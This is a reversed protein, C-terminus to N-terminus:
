TSNNCMQNSSLVCWTQVSLANGQATTKQPLKRNGHARREWNGEM